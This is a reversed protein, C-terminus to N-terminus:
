AGSFREKRWRRPKRRAPRKRFYRRARRFEAEEDEDYPEPIHGTTKKM